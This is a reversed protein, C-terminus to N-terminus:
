ALVAKLADLFAANGEPLGIAHVARSVIPTGRPLKPLLTDMMSQMIRPVGAMLGAIGCVIATGDLWAHVVEPRRERFEAVLDLAGVDDDGRRM